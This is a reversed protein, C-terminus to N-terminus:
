ADHVAEPAQRHLNVLMVFAVWALTLLLMTERPTAHVGTRVISLAAIGCVVSLALISAWVIGPASCWSAFAPKLMYARIALWGSALAAAAVAVLDMISM